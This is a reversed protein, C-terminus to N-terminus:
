IDRQNEREGPSPPETRGSRFEALAAVLRVVARQLSLYANEIGPSEKGRGMMEVALAANMVETASLSRAGSWLLHASDAVSSFNRAAISEEINHLLAPCAASYIGAIESLYQRDEGFSRLARTLDWCEPNITM